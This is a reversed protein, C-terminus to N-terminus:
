SSASRSSGLSHDSKRLRARIRSDGRRGNERRSCAGDFGSELGALQGGPAVGRAEGGEGGGVGFQPLEVLGDLPLLLGHVQHLPIRGVQPPLPLPQSQIPLLPRIM